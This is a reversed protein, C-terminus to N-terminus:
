KTKRIKDIKLRKLQLPTPEIKRLVIRLHKTEQEEAEDDSIWITEVPDDGIEVTVSSSADDDPITITEPIFPDETSLSEDDSIEIIEDDSSEISEDDSIVILTEPTNHLSSDDELFGLDIDTEVPRTEHVNVTVPMKIIM